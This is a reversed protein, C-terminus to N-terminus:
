HLRARYRIATAVSPGLEADPVEGLYGVKAAADKPAMPTIRCDENSEEIEGIKALARMQAGLQRPLFGFLGAFVKQYQLHGDQTLAAQQRPSLLAWKPLPIQALFRKYTRYWGSGMTPSLAKATLELLGSNLVRMLADDPWDDSFIAYISHAPVGGSRDM